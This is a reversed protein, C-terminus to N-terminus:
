LRTKLWPHHMMQELTMRDEERKELCWELFLQAHLSLNTPPKTFCPKNIIDHACHFPKHSFLMEYLLTGISWVTLGDFYFHKKIYYEPPSQGISVRRKTSQFGGIRIYTAANFNTIKVQWRQTDLLLNGTKLQLHFINLKACQQVTNIIQIILARADNETLSRYEKLYRRLSIQGFKKTIVLHLQEQTHFHDLLDVVGDVDKLKKLLNVEKLKQSEQNFVSKIIVPQHTLRDIGLAVNNTYRAVLNRDLRYKAHFSNVDDLNVPQMKPPPDKLDSFKKLLTISCKRHRM